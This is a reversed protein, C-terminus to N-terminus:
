RGVSSTKAVMESWRRPSHSDPREGSQYESYFDLLGMLRVWEKGRKKNVKHAGRRPTLPIGEGWDGELFYYSGFELVGKEVSTVQFASRIIRPGRGGDPCILDFVWDGAVANERLTDHCASYRGQEWGPDVKCGSKGFQRYRWAGEQSDAVDDQLRRHVAIWYNAM